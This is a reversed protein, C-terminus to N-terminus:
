KLANNCQLKEWLLCVMNLSQKKCVHLRQFMDRDDVDEDNRDRNM